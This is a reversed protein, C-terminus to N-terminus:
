HLTATFSGLPISVKARVVENASDYVIDAKPIRHGNVKVSKPARRVGLFSILRVKVARTGGPTLAKGRAILKGASYSFSLETTKPQKISIGDDIYLSGTAEGSASPAIVLEFDQVRVAATTDASTARLPLVTGGKIHVPISIYSIDTLHVESGHGIVSSYTLFDYFIDKPIYITVDTANEAIVPSVLISDGFFFQSDIAFTNSDSPYNFFLPNLIPSGDLSAQHLATYIYDLLRYRMDIANKAAQTVLPWRYFEQGISSFDNHNRYFPGFAGLMAWRACLIDTTDGGFGCIDAGVMPVQYIAAFGLMGAISNQYHQWTSLNDGLWKGVKAGAGAFTSRTIILTRLGPRRALMAEHTKTSM